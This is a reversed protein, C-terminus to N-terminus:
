KLSVDLKRAKNLVIVNACEVQDALLHAITRQDGEEAGLTPRDTLMEATGYTEEADRGAQQLLRMELSYM